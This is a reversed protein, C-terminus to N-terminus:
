DLRRHLDFEIPIVVWVAVPRGQQLAPKFIATKAAELAAEDLGLVSQLLQVQQTTGDAGVLVRVLVTGEIGAERAIDPYAPKRMWVLEPEHEVVIFDPPAQLSTMPEVAPITGVNEGDWPEGGAGPGTGSPPGVRTGWTFDREAVADDVPVISRVVQPTPVVHQRVPVIPPPPMPAPMPNIPVIPSRASNGLDGAPALSHRVITLTTTAAVLLVLAATFARVMYEDTDLRDLYDWRPYRGPPTSGLIAQM